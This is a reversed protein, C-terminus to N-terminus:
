SWTCKRFGRGHVCFVVPTASTAQKAAKTEPASAAVIVDVKLGVLEAALTPLRELQGDTSRNEVTINRGNLWGFERPGRRVRDYTRAHSPIGVSVGASLNERDAPSRRAATVLTAAVGAIFARRAM